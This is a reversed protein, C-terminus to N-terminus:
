RSNQAHGRKLQDHLFVRAKDWDRQVTRESVGRLAAVEMLSLGGFYKLDVLEALRPDHATLEEMAAALAELAPNELDVADANEAVATDLQTIYFQGGRRQARRARAFDILLSRMARAAYSMFRARDPFATRGGALSLYTEHLLTTPSICLGANARLQREALRHLEAYLASFLRGQGDAGRAGAQELLAVWDEVTVPERGISGLGAARSTGDQWRVPEQRSENGNEAKQFSLSVAWLRLFCLSWGGHGNPGRLPLADSRSSQLRAQRRRCRVLALCKPGNGPTARPGRWPVQHM